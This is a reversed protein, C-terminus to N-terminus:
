CMKASQSLVITRSWEGIRTVKIGAYWGPSRWYIIYKVWDVTVATLKKASIAEHVEDLAEKVVYGITCWSKDLCVRFAIARADAPNNPEPYLKCIVDVNRNRIQSVRALTEQYKMDKTCGICKFTVTHTVVPSFGILLSAGLDSTTDEEEGDSTSASDPPTEPIITISSTSEEDSEADTSDKWEWQWIVFVQDDLLTLGDTDISRTFESVQMIM